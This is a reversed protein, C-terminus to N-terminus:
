FGARAVKALHARRHRALHGRPIVLRATFPTIVPQATKGHITATIMLEYHGPPVGNLKVGNPGGRDFHVITRLTVLRTCRRAHPSKVKAPAVCARGRMLGPEPQVVRLKARARQNDTYTITTGRAANFSAPNLELSGIVPAGVPPPLPPSGAAVVGTPASTAPGATNADNTAWEQVILTHRVDSATPYYYPQVAGRIETCNAGTADCDSWQYMYGYPSNTWSGHSENLRQGEQATGSITPVATNVPPFLPNGNRDCTGYPDGPNTHREVCLVTNSNSPEEANGGPCLGYADDGVGEVVQLMVEQNGEQGWGSNNGRPQAGYSYLGNATDADTFSATGSGAVPAIVQFPVGQPYYAPGGSNPVTGGLDYFSVTDGASVCMHVPQYTTITNAGSPTDSCFPLTFPGATADVRYSGGTLPTLTQFEITNVPVSGGTGTSSSQTPSNPDKVACGKIRVELVQGGQPATASGGAVATNWVTNDAGSHIWPTCNITTAGYSRTCGSSFATSIANDANRGSFSSLPEDNTEASAGNATDLTPTASLSSGWPALVTARSVVPFALALAALAAIPLTLRLARRRGVSSLIAASM